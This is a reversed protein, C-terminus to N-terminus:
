IIDPFGVIGAASVMSYFHNYAIPNILRFSLAGNEYVLTVWAPINILVAYHVDKVYGYDTLVVPFNQTFRERAIIYVLIPFDINLIEGQYPVVEPFNHFLFAFPYTCASNRHRDM